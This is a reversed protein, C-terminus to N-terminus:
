VNGSTAELVKDSFNGEKYNFGETAGLKKAFDIKSRSGATVYSTGLLLLFIGPM